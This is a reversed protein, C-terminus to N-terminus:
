RFKQTKANEPNICLFGPIDAEAGAFSLMKVGEYLNPWSLNQVAIILSVPQCFLRM